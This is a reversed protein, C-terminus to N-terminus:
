RSYKGGDAAVYFVEANETSAMLSWGPELNMRTAPQYSTSFVPVTASPTVATVAVEKRLKKASGDNLFFRIMGATTTAGATINILDIGIGRGTADASAITAITGTGDRASNAASVTAHFTCPQEYWTPFKNTM